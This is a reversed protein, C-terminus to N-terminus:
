RKEKVRGLNNLVWSRGKLNVAIQLLEMATYFKAPLLIEDEKDSM